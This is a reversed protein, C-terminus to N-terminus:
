LVYEFTSCFDSYDMWRKPIDEKSSEYKASETDNFVIVKRTSSGKLTRKSMSESTPTGTVSISDRASCTDSKSSFYRLLPLTDQVQVSACLEVFRPLMNPSTPPPAPNNPDPERHTLGLYYPTQLVPLPPVLPPPSLEKDRIQTVLIPM